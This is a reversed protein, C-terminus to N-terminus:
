HFEIRQVSRLNATNTNINLALKTGTPPICDLFSINGPPLEPHPRKGSLSYFDLLRVFLNEEGAVVTFKGEVTNFEMWSVNAHYGEFEPIFGHHVEPIPATTGSRGFM